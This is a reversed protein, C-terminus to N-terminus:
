SVEEFHISFFFFFNRRPSRMVHRPRSNIVNRRLSNMVTRRFPHFSAPFPLRAEPLLSLAKVSAHVRLEALAHAHPCDVIGLLQGTSKLRVVFGWASTDRCSLGSGQAERADRWTEDGGHQRGIQAQCADATVTSDSPVVRLPAAGSPADHTRSGAGSPATAPGADRPVSRPNSTSSQLVAPVLAQRQSGDQSCTDMPERGTRNGEVPNGGNLAATIRDKFAAYKWGQRVYVPSGGFAVLEWTDVDAAKNSPLTRVGDGRTSRGRSLAVKKGRQTGHGNEFSNQGGVGKGVTIKGRWSGVGNWVREVDGGRGSESEESSDEEGTGEESSSGEGASSSEEDSEEADSSEEGSSVEEDSEDEDSSEDSSSSEESSDQERTIVGGCAGGTPVEGGELTGPDEKGGVLERNGRQGNRVVTTGCTATGGGGELDEERLTGEGPSGVRSGPSRTGLSRCEEGGRDVAPAWGDCGAVRCDERAVGAGGIGGVLRKGEHRDTPLVCPGTQADSTPTAACTDEDPSNPEPKRQKPAGPVSSPPQPSVMWSPLVPRDERALIPAVSILDDQPGFAWSIRVRKFRRRQETKSNM